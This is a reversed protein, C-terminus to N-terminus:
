KSRMESVSDGAEVGTVEGGLTEGFGLLELNGYCCTDTGVVDVKVDGVLGIATDGDGFDSAGIDDGDGLVDDHGDEGEDAVEDGGVFLDCPAIPINGGDGLVLVIELVLDDTGNGNPTDTLTHQASQLRKIALLQQVKVVLRQLGLNLLLNAAPTHVTQLLHELDTVNDGDVARQVLLSSAHEVLLQDGLHLITLELVLLM